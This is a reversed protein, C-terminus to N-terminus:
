RTKEKQRWPLIPNSREHHKTKDEKWQPRLNSWHFLKELQKITKASTLPKIYTLHWWGHSEWTMGDYFQSEILKIVKRKNCKLLPHIYFEDDVPKFIFKNVEYRYKQIYPKSWQDSKTKKMAFLFGGMFWYHRVVIDDRPSPNNRYYSTLCM